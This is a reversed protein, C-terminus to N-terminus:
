PLKVRFSGGFTGGKYQGQINLVVQKGSSGVSAPFHLTLTHSAFEALHKQPLPLATLANVGGLKVSAIEVNTVPITPGFGGNKITITALVLGAVSDRELVIDLEIEPNPDWTATPRKYVPIAWGNQGYLADEISLGLPDNSGPDTTTPQDFLHHLRELPISTWSRGLSQANILFNTVNYSQSAYPRYNEPLNTIPGNQYNVQWVIPTLMKYLSAEYSRQGAKVISASQSDDVSWQGENVLTGIATLLGYNRMTKDRLSANATLAGQFAINLKGALQNYAEQYAVGGNPLHSSAESFVTGLLGAVATASAVTPGTIALAAHAVSTLTSLITLAVKVSSNDAINLQQNGVTTLSLSDSLFTNTIITSAQGYWLNVAIANEIETLIQAKVLLWDEHSVSAPPSLTKGQHDINAILYTQYTSLPAILDYYCSRFEGSPAPGRLATNLYAYADRLSQRITDSTYDPFDASARNWVASATDFKWTQIGDKDRAILEARGDGNVDALRITSYYEVQNWSTGNSDPLSNGKGDTGNDTWRPTRPDYGALFIWQRTTPDYRHAQVGLQDRGILEDRGDGNIDGYRITSYYPPLNWVQSADSFGPGDPLAIFMQSNKDYKVGVIGIANRALIEKAGDGDIDACQITSYFRPQNWSAADSWAPGPALQEWTGTYKWIELGNKSRGLLEDRGDGDVDALQITAYYQPLEWQTGDSSDAPNDAWQPGRSLLTWGNNVFKWAVIGHEDRAILEDCNDGDIDGYQITTYYEPSGWGSDDSFAPGDPIAVYSQSAKDYKVGQINSHSRVLIEAQGDGDIDACRITRYYEAGGWGFRDAWVPPNGPMPMWQGSDKDFEEVLIGNPGRIILEKRGDGDIDAVQLTEYYKPQNWGALDNWQPLPLESVDTGAVQAFFSRKAGGVLARALTQTGGILLSLATLGIAGRGAQLILDRRSLNLSFSAAKEPLLINSDNRRDSM